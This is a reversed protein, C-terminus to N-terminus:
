GQWRNMTAQERKEEREQRLLEAIWAEKVDAPMSPGCQYWSGRHCFWEIRGEYRLVPDNGPPVDCQDYDRGDDERENM